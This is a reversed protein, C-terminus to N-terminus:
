PFTRKQPLTVEEKNNNSLDDDIVDSNIIQATVIRQFPYYTIQYGLCSRVKVQDDILRFWGPSTPPWDESCLQPWAVYKQLWDSNCGNKGQLGLVNIQDQDESLGLEQRMIGMEVIFESYYDDGSDQNGPEIDTIFCILVGNVEICEVNGGVPQLNFLQGDTIFNILQVNNPDYNQSSSLVDKTRQVADIFPSFEGDMKTIGLVNHAINQYNQETIITPPLEVITTYDPYTHQGFQIITLEIKENHPISGDLITKSIGAKITQFENDSITDAGDIVLALQTFEVEDELVDVSSLIKLDAQDGYDLDGIDWIGTDGDYTGTLANSGTYDLGTPLNCQVKVNGTNNPGDNIVRLGFILRDYFTPPTIGAPDHKMSLNLDAIILEEEVYNVTTEDINNEGSSDGDEEFETGIIDIELRISYTQNVTDIPSNSPLAITESFISSVEDQGLNDLCITGESAFGEDAYLSYNFGNSDNQGHNKVSFCVDVNAGTESVTNPECYLSHIGLDAIKPPEVPPESEKLAGMMIASNSKADVLMIDIKKFPEYNPLCSLLDFKLKEGIAWKDDGNLGDVVDSYELCKPPENEGSNNKYQVIVRFDLDIDEGGAHELILYNDQISGVVDLSPTSPQSDVAIFSIYVVSFLSVSIGLLLITGIVESVAFTDTRRKKMIIYQRYM